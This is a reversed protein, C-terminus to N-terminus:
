RPMPLVRDPAMDAEQVWDPILPQDIWAYPDCETNFTIPQPVLPEPHDAGELLWGWTEMDVAMAAEIDEDRFLSGSGALFQCHYEQTYLWDGMSRKEEALFEASIRPCLTAPVEIRHWAQEHDHWAESWWGRKGHPTSLAILLGGSVALMPRLAIYLADPVWAAEDIAILTPGSFGRVTGPNGPLALIRSGNELELSFVNASVPLVLRGSAVYFQKVKLFLEGSQREGPSILLILAGPITMAKYLALLATATSKGSQRSCNLLVRDQTTMVLEEQWADLILGCEKALTLPTALVADVHARRRERFELMAKARM